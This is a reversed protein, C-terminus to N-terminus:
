VTPHSLAAPVPPLEVGTLPRVGKELGTQPAAAQQELTHCVCVPVSSQELRHRNTLSLVDEWIQCACAQM